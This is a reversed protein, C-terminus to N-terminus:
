DNKLPGKGEWFNNLKTWWKFSEPRLFQIFREPEVGANESINQIGELLGITAAEKVQANGDIHLSEVVEFVQVFEDTEEMKMKEVLHRAFEGLDVYLLKEDGWYERHEQWKAKFSPCSSILMSMVQDESIM